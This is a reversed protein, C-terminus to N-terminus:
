PRRAIRSSAGIASNCLPCCLRNFRANCRSFFGSVRSSRAGRLGSFLQVALVGLGRPPHLDYANCDQVVKFGLETKIRKIRRHLTILGLRALHQIADAVTRRSLLLAPV